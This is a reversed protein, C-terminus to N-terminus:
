KTKRVEEIEEEVDALLGEVQGCMDALANMLTHGKGVVYVSRTPMYRINWQKVEM